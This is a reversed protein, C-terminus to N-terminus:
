PTVRITHSDVIDLLLIRDNLRVRFRRPSVAQLHSLTFPADDLGLQKAVADLDVDRVAVLRSCCGENRFAVVEILLSARPETRLVVARYRTRDGIDRPASIDWFPPAAVFHTVIEDYDLDVRDTMRVVFQAGAANAALGVSLLCCLLTSRTSM